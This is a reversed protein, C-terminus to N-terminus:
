DMWHQMTRIHGGVARAQTRLAMHTPFDEVRVTGPRENDLCNLVHEVARMGRSYARRIAAPDRMGGDSFGIATNVELRQKMYWWMVLGEEGLAPPGGFVGNRDGGLLIGLVPSWNTECLMAVHMVDHAHFGARAGETVPVLADGLALWFRSLTPFMVGIEVNGADDFNYRFRAPISPVRNM